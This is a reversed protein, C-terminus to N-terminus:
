NNIPFIFLKPIKIKVSIFLIKMWQNAGWIALLTLVPGPVRWTELMSPLPVHDQADMWQTERRILLDGAHIAPACTRPGDDVANGPM